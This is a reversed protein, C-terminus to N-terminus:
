ASCEHVARMCWVCASCESGEQLHAIRPATALPLTVPGILRRQPVLCLM